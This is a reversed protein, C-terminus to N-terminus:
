TRPGESLPAVVLDAYAPHGRIYAAIFPCRPVVRLGRVRVDDLAGAALRSGIGRGEFEPLVVTHVFIIRDGRLRYESFGVLQGDLRAEYRGADPADVIRLGDTTAEERTLDPRWDDAPSWTPSRGM